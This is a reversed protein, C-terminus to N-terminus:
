PQTIRNEEGQRLFPMGNMRESYRYGNSRAVVFRREEDYDMRVALGVAGPPASKAPSVADPRPLTRAGLAVLARDLTSFRPTARQPKDTDDM